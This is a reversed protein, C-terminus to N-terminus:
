NGKLYFYVAVLAGVIGVSVGLQYGLAVQGALAIILLNILLQAVSYATQSNRVFYAV